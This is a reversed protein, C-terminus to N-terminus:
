GGFAVLREETPEYIMNAPTEVLRLVPQSYAFINTMACEALPMANPHETYYSLNMACRRCDRPANKTARGPAVIDSFL